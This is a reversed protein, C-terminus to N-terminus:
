SNMTHKKNIYSKVHLKILDVVIEGTINVSPTILHEIYLSAVANLHICQSPWCNDGVGITEISCCGHQKKASYTNLNVM